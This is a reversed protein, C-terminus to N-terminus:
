ELHSDDGLRPGFGPAAAARGARRAWLALPGVALAALAAAVQGARAM